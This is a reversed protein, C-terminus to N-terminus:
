KRAALTVFPSLTNTGKFPTLPKEWMPMGNVRYIFRFVEEDNLFQVHISRDARVGGKDIKLYQSMDALIIDGADGLSATQEIPIVPRGLLTGFPQGSLGGAPLYVPIGGTGVALSMSMLQPEIDQNIYWVATQRSRAWMRSWMKVINEFLITNAVQGAEKAITVLAGSNLIGLPNGAGTGNVFADDIKFAIENTFADTVVAALQVADTLVEDTAYYLAMLKDLKMSIEKFKPKTATVTGAESTWYAQVGGYRSGNVRSTEDVGNIRIGNANTGIPISRTRSAVQSMEYTKTLLENVFTDEVLFGGESNIAENSGTANFLRKDISAGPAAADRVSKLMEGFSNWKPKNEKPQAFLPTNVPTTAEVEAEAQAKVRADIKEQNAITTELNKIEVELADFKTQEETSMARNEAIATNLLAQQESFKNKLLDKLKM